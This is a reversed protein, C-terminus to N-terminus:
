FVALILFFMTVLLIALTITEANFRCKIDQCFEKVKTM